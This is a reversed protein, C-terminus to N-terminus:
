SGGRDDLRAGVDGALIPVTGAAADLQARAVLYDYVAQAYNFESQRLALEADTVQLQSGIGERNEASAIDFGRRAQEVATAQSRMRLQAEQLNELVTRVENEVEKATRMQEQEIRDLTAHVQQVRADRSFGQFIPLRVSVGTVASTSRTNPGGFFDPAGNEQATVNINGFLSLVPFYESKFSKLRTQELSHALAQQRLNSREQMALTNLQSLDLPADVPIGAAAFLLQNAESNKELAEVNVESLDGQLVVSDNPSLGLQVLLTRKTAQTANAIRRVNPELNAVEVELRLVDYKSSLGARYLAQMEDLTQQVRALSNQVLRLDAEALLANLYAIRVDTVVDQTTGRMREGELSRFRGAAGVGLFANFEFLPQNIELGATWTNDSGFQVPILEDPAADPNFIIAPLFAKQVKLNRSYSATAAVDPLVSAWAERVQQGALRVNQEAASIDHNNSLATRIARDFPYALSVEQVLGSGAGVATLFVLIVSRM